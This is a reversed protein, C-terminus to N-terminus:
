KLFSVLSPLRLSSSASLVSEYGAAAVARDLDDDRRRHRRGRHFHGPAEGNLEALRDVALAQTSEITAGVEGALKALELLHERFISAYPEPAREALERLTHQDCQALVAARAAELERVAGAAEDLEDAAMGFFREDDATLVERAHQLRFLLTELARREQAVVAVVDDM